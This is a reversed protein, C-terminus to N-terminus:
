TVKGIIRHSVVKLPGGYVKEFMTVLEPSTISEFNFIGKSRLDSFIAKMLSEAVGHKRYEPEIWFMWCQFFQRPFGFPRTTIMGNFQGIPKRGIYAIKGVFVPSSIANFIQARINGPNEEEMMPYAEPAIKRSSEYLRLVDVIHSPMVTDIRPKLQKKKPKIEAKPAPKEVSETKIEEQNEM